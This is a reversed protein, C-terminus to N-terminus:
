LIVNRPDECRIYTLTDKDIVAAGGRYMQYYLIGDLCTKPYLSHSSPYSIETADFDLPVADPKMALMAIPSGLIVAICVARIIFTKM